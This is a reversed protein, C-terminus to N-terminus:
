EIMELGFFCLICSFLSVVTVIFWNCFYNKTYSKSTERFFFFFYYGLLSTYFLIFLSTIVYLYIELYLTQM